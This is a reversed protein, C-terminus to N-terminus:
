LSQREVIVRNMICDLIFVEEEKTNLDLKSRQKLLDMYIKNTPARRGDFFRMHFVLADPYDEYIRDDIVVKYKKRQMTKWLGSKIEDLDYCHSEFRQRHMTVYFEYDLKSDNVREYFSGESELGDLLVLTDSDIEYVEGYVKADDHTKFMLPFGHKIDYLSYGKLTEYRIFKSNKLYFHNKGGSKLTGYVFIRM